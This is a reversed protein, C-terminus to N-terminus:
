TEDSEGNREGSELAKLLDKLTNKDLVVGQKSPETNEKWPEKYGRERGTMIDEKLWTMFDDVCGPCVELIKEGKTADTRYSISGM